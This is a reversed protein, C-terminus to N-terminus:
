GIQQDSDQNKDVGCRSGTLLIAGTLDSPGVSYPGSLPTTAPSVEFDEIGQKSIHLPDRM